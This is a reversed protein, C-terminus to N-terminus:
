FNFLKMLTRIVINPQRVTDSIIGKGKVELQLNYLQYSYVSNNPAIDAPRVVGRLVVNEHQQNALVSRRAEVVLSGSPLVGVVQATLVTNLTSTSATSGTGALKAASNMALLPNLYSVSQGGVGTVASSHSFSRQSAVSGSQAITTSESIQIALTDGLNHAKVDAFPDALLGRSTFISGTSPASAQPAPSASVERLYAALTDQQKEAKAKRAMAPIPACLLLLLACAFWTALPRIAMRKTM